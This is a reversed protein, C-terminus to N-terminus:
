DTRVWFPTFVGLEKFPGCGNAICGYTRTYRPQNPDFQPLYKTIGPLFPTKSVTFKLDQRPVQSGIAIADYAGPHNSLIIAPGKSPIKLTGKVHVQVGLHKLM